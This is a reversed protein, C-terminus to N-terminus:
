LDVTFIAGGLLILLSLVLMDDFRDFLSANWGKTNALHCEYPFSLKLSLFIM